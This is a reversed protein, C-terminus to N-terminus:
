YPLEYAVSVPSRGPLSRVGRFRAFAAAMVPGEITLATTTDVLAGACHDPGISCPRPKVVALRFSRGFGRREPGDGAAM